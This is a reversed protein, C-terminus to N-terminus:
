LVLNKFMPFYYDCIEKLMVKDHNVPVNNCYQEPIDVCKEVTEDHCVEKSVPKRVIETKETCVKVALKTSSITVTINQCQPFTLVTEEEDTVMDCKSVNEDRCEKRFSNTCVNDFTTETETTEVTKCTKKLCENKCGNFCCLGFGVEEDNENVLECDTDYTGPAWCTSIGQM